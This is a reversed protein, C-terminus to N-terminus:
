RKRRYTSTPASAREPSPPAETPRVLVEDWGLGLAICAAERARFWTNAQLTLTPSSATAQLPTARWHNM